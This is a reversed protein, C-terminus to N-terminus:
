NNILVRGAKLIMELNGHRIGYGVCRRAFRKAQGAFYGYTEADLFSCGKWQRLQYLYDEMLQEALKLDEVKGTVSGAHVRYAALPRLLGIVDTLMGVRYFFDDDAIHGAGPEYHMQHFISRHTIVGPCRHIHVNGFTQYARVYELGTYRVVAPGYGTSYSVGLEQGSEDIYRCAAFLHRVDKEQELAAMGLRIFEPSLVDDQHLISIYDGTAREVAKNWANVFGSAGPENTYVTLRHSYRRCIALTDDVSGDDCIIFEDPPRSQTLVSLIAEEVYQGGNYTPIVISLSM